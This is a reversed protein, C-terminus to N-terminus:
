EGLISELIRLDSKKRSVVPEKNEKKEEKKDTEM